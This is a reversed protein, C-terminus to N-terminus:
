FARRRSTPFCLPSCFHFVLIVVLPTLLLDFMGPIIKHLKQEFKAAFFTILLVAIVGGRSPVLASGNVTINALGPHTMIAALVGGLIPSGGFEKAANFGIFLNL